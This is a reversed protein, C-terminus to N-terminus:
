SAFADDFVGAPYCYRFEKQFAVIRTKPLAEQLKRLGEATVPNGSLDLEELSSLSALPSLADDTLLNDCLSLSKLSTMGELFSVDALGGRTLSLARLAPLSALPALEPALDRRASDTLILDATVAASLKEGILADEPLGTFFCEEGFAADAWLSALSADNGDSTIVRVDRDKFIEELGSAIGEPCPCSSVKIERLAPFAEPTLASLDSLPNHSLDLTVLSPLGERLFSLSEIGTGTLTLDRLGSLGSLAEPDSLVGGGLSLSRLSSLKEIGRLRYSGARLCFVSELSGAGSFASFDLEPTFSVTLSVLEKLTGVPSWDLKGTQTYISLTRCRPTRSLGELTYVPLGTLTIDKADGGYYLRTIGNFLVPEGKAYEEPIFIGEEPSDPVTEAPPLAASEEAPDSAPSVPPDAGRCSSLFLLFILLLLALRKQM